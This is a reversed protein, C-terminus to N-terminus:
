VHKSRFGPNCKKPLFSFHLGKILQNNFIYLFKVSLFHLGERYRYGRGQCTFSTPIAGTHFIPPQPITVLASPIHGNKQLKAANCNFMGSLYFKMFFINVITAKSPINPRPEHLCFQTQWHISSFLLTVLVGILPPVKVWASRVQWAM